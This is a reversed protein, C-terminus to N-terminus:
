FVRLINQLAEVKRKDDIKRRCDACLQQHGTTYELREQMTRRKHRYFNPCNFPAKSHEIKNGCLANAISNSIFRQVPYSSNMSQFLEGAGSIVTIRQEPDNNWMALDTRYQKDFTDAVAFTTICFLRNLGLATVQGRLKNCVEQGHLVGQQTNNDKDQLLRWTGLPATIDVVEFSYMSQVGNLREALAELSPLVHNVDWLGIRAGAAAGRRVGSGTLLDQMPQASHSPAFLSRCPNRAYVVPVAWDICEGAISYNVAVRAERAADGVSSGQALSWYFRRAFETASLDLVKYQNAVVAPIGGAVLKPALGRNFDFRTNSRGVMGTECANLFVLRINRHCLIQRLSEASVPQARGDAREFILYGEQQDERYEGHGIFHVVDYEFYELRQHLLDATASLMVDVTALNADILHRFGRRVVVEEEQASLLGLGIPQAVVILIRMPGRHLSDVDSPVSTLVNRTFNVDEPALFTQRSPDYSFEWPKDAVWNIMSTMVIDLRHGRSAVEARAVDYLRRVGRPLITEFLEMGFQQLDERGPLNPAGPNGNIYDKIGENFAIIKQWRKGGGRPDDDQGRLVVTEVVRANRFTALLVAVRKKQKQQDTSGKQPQPVHDQSPDPSDSSMMFLQFVEDAEVSPRLSQTRQPLLVEAARSPLDLPAPATKPPVATSPEPEVVAAASRLGRSPLRVAPDLLPLTHQKGSLTEILFDITQPQRFFQTHIINLDSKINGGSGTGFCAIQKSPLITPASGIRWGGETPVVLDCAGRFFSDVGADAMRVLVNSDPLYNSVLASYSGVPPPPAIELAKILEGEMDMAGLGPIGGSARHALWVLAESIFELTLTFPNEPFMDAVNAIWGVSTEWRKPTALPTGQNPSAVLVAHGLQFKGAGKGLVSKREVLDRLILGGRSHTIVDFTAQKPLGALLERANQDPTKGLTFHNFAFIREGYIPRVASFFDAGSIGRTAALDSYAGAANSFTGHLLLLCRDSAAGIRSFDADQFRNSRLAEPTVQLWGERLGKKQWSHQEFALALRPLLLDALKGTVKLVAGKIASTLISRRATAIEDPETERFDVQFRVTAPGAAVGRRAVAASPRHFTLAGSPHRLVLIYAAAPDAPVSLDLRPLAEATRRERASAQIARHVEVRGPETLKEIFPDSAGAVGRRASGTQVGELEWDTNIVVATSRRKAM